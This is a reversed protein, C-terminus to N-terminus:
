GAPPAGHALAPLAAGPHGAAVLTVLAPGIAPTLLEVLALVGLVVGLGWFWAPHVRGGRARDMAMGALPFLLGPLFAAEFAYPTLLPMPLLRGFGPGTLLAMACLHLRRHWDSRRRLAVAAGTLGAFGYCTLPDFILFEAPTFFFPVRGQQVLRVTVMTGLVVMPVVWAAALWGLRRHLAIQGRQGSTALLSQALFLFVWGFFVIAHAHVIPAAAFSSRGAALQVSFGAVMVLAIVVASAAFFRQEGLGTPPLAATAM